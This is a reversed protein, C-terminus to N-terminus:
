KREGWKCFGDPEVDCLEDANYFHECRWYEYGSQEGRYVRACICDRCRVIGERLYAELPFDFDTLSYLTKADKVHIIYESM